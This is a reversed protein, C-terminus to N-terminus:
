QLPKNLLFPCEEKCRDCGIDEKIIGMCNTKRSNQVKNYQEFFRVDNISNVVVQASKIAEYISNTNPVGGTHEERTVANIIDAGDLLAMYSAGIAASIHDWGIARDTPIPGLPMFPVYFDDRILEVYKKLANLSIHGVGEMMVSIGRKRLSKIIDKQMRIESLQITDLADYLTSPRFTTGVSVVVSYKKLIKCIDDFYELLFNQKRKNLYLDRLVLSGGRSIVSINRKMTKRYIDDIATFHLTMFSVGNQAQREIEELFKNKDIGKESDFCAYVPVTGVPCGIKEQVIQYIPNKVSIISLYMMIDPLFDFSAIKSIKDAENQFQSEDSLGVSSNIKLQLGKGALTDFRKGKLFVVENDQIRKKLNDIDNYENYRTKM